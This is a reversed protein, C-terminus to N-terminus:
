DERSSEPSIFEGGQEQDIFTDNNTRSEPEELYDPLDKNVIETECYWRIVPYRDTPPRKVPIRTPIWPRM